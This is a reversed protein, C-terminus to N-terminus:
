IFYNMTACHLSGHERIFVSADIGVVDRNPFFNQLTELVIKDNKDTYTPVLLANNIFIFNLYTAPLREGLFYKATPLPLALLNFNTKKLEEEMKKLSAFHKDSTDYCKVYAITDANLFRALTDIHSDTDDGILSGNQLIIIEQIGLTNKLTKVIQEQSLKPNRNENFICNQTTLLVGKGNTEISGGELVFDINKMPAKFFNMKKLKLNVANDKRYDFKRGWANFKFNLLKLEGNKYICIAGFDRIWTDNTEIQLLELNKSKPLIKITKQKNECLVVCKQHIIIAKILSIYSNQIDNISHEWDSKANPFVIIIYKQKEWEGLLRIQM